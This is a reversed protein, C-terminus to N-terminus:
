ERLGSNGTDLVFKWSGDKQKKWISIYTGVYELTDGKIKLYWYGYTYGLDGSNSIDAFKPEWTLVYGTDSPTNNFYEKVNEVKIIPYMNPKLLVGNDDIYKLFAQKMGTKESTESFEKDTKIIESCAEEKDFTQNCAHFVFFTVGILIIIKYTIKKM